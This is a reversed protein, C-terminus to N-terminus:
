RAEDCQHRRPQLASVKQFRTFFGTIGGGKKKEEIEDKKDEQIEIAMLEVGIRERLEKDLKAPQNASADLHDNFVAVAEDRFEESDSATKKWKNVHQWFNVSFKQEGVGHMRDIYFEFLESGKPDKLCLDIDAFEPCEKLYHEAYIFVKPNAPDCSQFKPPRRLM